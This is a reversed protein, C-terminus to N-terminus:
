GLLGKGNFTRNCVLNGAERHLLVPRCVYKVKNTDLRPGVLEKGLMFVLKGRGKRLLRRVRKCKEKFNRKGRNGQGM